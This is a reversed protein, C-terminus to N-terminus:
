VIRVAAPNRGARRAAAAIETRAAAIRARAADTQVLVARMTRAGTTHTLNGSHRAWPVRPGGDHAVSRRAPGGGEHHGRTEGRLGLRGRRWVENSRDPEDFGGPLGLQGVEGRVELDAGSGRLVIRLTGRDGGSREDLAMGIGDPDSKRTEVHPANSTS